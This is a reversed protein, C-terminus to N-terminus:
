GAKEGRPMWNHAPLCAHMRNSRMLNLEQRLVSVQMGPGLTLAPTSLGEGAGVGGWGSGGTRFNGDELQTTSHGSHTREAVTTEVDWQQDSHQFVPSSCCVHCSCPTCMTQALPVHFSLRKRILVLSYRLSLHSATFDGEKDKGLYFEMPKSPVPLSLTRPHTEGCQLPCTNM